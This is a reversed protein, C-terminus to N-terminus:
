ASVAKAKLSQAKPKLRKVKGKGSQAKQKNKLRRLIVVRVM